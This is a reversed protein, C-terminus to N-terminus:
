EAVCFPGRSGKVPIKAVGRRLFGLDQPLRRVAVGVVLVNASVLILSAVALAEGLM